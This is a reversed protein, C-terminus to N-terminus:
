QVLALFVKKDGMKLVELNGFVRKQPVKAMFSRPPPYNGV